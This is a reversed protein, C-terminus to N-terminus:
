NGLADAGTQSIGSRFSFPKAARAHGHVSGSYAAKACL